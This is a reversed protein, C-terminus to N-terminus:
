IKKSIKEVEKNNSKKMKRYFADYIEEADKKLSNILYLKLKTVQDKSLLSFSTSFELISYLKSLFKPNENKTYKIFEDIFLKSLSFYDGDNAIEKFYNWLENMIEINAFKSLGNIALQQLEPENEKFIVEKLIEASDLTGVNHLYKILERRVRFDKHSVLPKLQSYNIEVELEALISLGNRVVFWRDDILLRKLYPVVEEGIDVILSILKRRMNKDEEEMLMQLLPKASVEGMMLISDELIEKEEFSVTGKKIVLLLEHIYDFMRSKSLVSRFNDNVRIKNFINQINEFNGNKLLKKLIIFTINELINKFDESVFKFNQNTFDILFRYTGLIKVILEKKLYDVLKMFNRIISLRVKIRRDVINKRIFEDINKFYENIMEYAINEFMELFNLGILEKPLAKFKAIRQSKELYNLEDWPILNYKEEIEHIGIENEKIKNLDYQDLEAVVNLVSNEMSKKESNNTSPITESQVTDTSKGETKTSNKIIQPSGNSSFTIQSGSAVSESGIAFNKAGMHYIYNANKVEYSLKTKNVWSASKKRADIMIKFFLSIEDKKSGQLIQFGSFPREAFFKKMLNVKNSPLHTRKDNVYVHEGTLLLILEEDMSLIKNILAYVKEFYKQSEPHDFKYLQFKQLAILFVKTFRDRLDM